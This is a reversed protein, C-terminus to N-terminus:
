SILGNKSLNIKAAHFRGKRGAPLISLQPSSGEEWYGFNVMGDNM